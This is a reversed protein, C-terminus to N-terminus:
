PIKYINQSTVGKCHGDMYAVTKGAIKKFEIIVGKKLYQSSGAFYHVYVVNDGVKIENGLFDNM